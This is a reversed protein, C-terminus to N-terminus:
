NGRYIEDAVAEEQFERDSKVDKHCFLEVRCQEIINHSVWGLDDEDIEESDSRKLSTIVIDAEFADMGFLREMEVTAIFVDGQVMFEKTATIQAKM